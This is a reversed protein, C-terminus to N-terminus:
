GWLLSRIAAYTIAAAFSLFLAILTILGMRERWGRPPKAAVERFIGFGLAPLVMAWFISFSVIIAYDITARSM